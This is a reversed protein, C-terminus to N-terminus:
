RLKHEGRIRLVDDRIFRDYAEVTIWTDGSRYGDRHGTYASITEYTLPCHSHSGDDPYEQLTWTLDTNLVLELADRSWWCRFIFRQGPSPLTPGVDYSQFTLVNRATGVLKHLQLAERSPDSQHYLAAPYLPASPLEGLVKLVTTTVDRQRAIDVVEAVPEKYTM